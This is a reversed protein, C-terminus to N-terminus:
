RPKFNVIGLSVCQVKFFLRWPSKKKKLLTTHTARFTHARDFDLKGTPIGLIPKLTEEGANGQRYPKGGLQSRQGLAAQHDQVVQRNPFIRSHPSQRYRSRMHVLQWLRNALHSTVQIRRDGYM